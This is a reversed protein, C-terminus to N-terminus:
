AAAEAVASSPDLAFAVAAETSMEFGASWAEPETDRFTAAPNPRGLSEEIAAAAGQLHAAIDVDGRREALEALLALDWAVLQKDGLGSVVSLSERLLSGARVLDGRRLEMNGLGSCAVGVGRTDGVQRFLALADELYRLAQEADGRSRAVNALNNLSAAVRSSEGLRRRLELSEEHLAAAEDLRGTDHAALGQSNLADSLLRSDDGTRALAVAEGFIEWARGPEGLELAVYGAGIRLRVRIDLELGESRLLARTLWSQGEALHGRRHWFRWLGAALRGLLADEGTSACWGLAHRLNDHEREFRDLWMGQGPGNLESQAREVLEVFFEAHRRSLVPQEDGAVLREGAYERITELMSFRGDAERVLAKHALEELSAPLGDAVDAAADETWGGAFVALRAFLVRADDGLLDYSWEIAARLSQQREPLDRPGEVLADLRRELQDVLEAPGADAVRAAALEIALPIGDLRACLQAVEAPPPAKRKVARAREVFLAVAEREPLPPIELVHEGSLRLRERSTALVRLNPCSRLLQVVAPAGDVLHEFNDLVLLIRGTGIEKAVGDSAGLVTGTAALVLEPDSLLALEVFFIGDPYDGVLGAAAELALRTKGIGGTGTLTVLRANGHTLLRRLQGLEPARGVFSAVPAPLSTRARPPGELSADQRLIRRHLEQLEPGPEIGLESVYLERSQRYVELADAQRGARYLCLMLQARLRERLPHLTTLQELETVLRAQDGAAIEAEIRDELVSLRREGLGSAVGPGDLDVGQLPEGQWLELASRLECAAEAPRRDDLSRRGGAALEEFRELDLEGPELRLSYGGPQRVLRNSDDGLARRLRSLHVDLSHSAKPEPRDPWLQELLEHRSVVRNPNLLLLALLSRQKPELPLSRDGRLAEVPGLIRFELAQRPV